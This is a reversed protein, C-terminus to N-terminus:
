LFIDHKQIPPNEEFQIKEREKKECPHCAIPASDFRPEEKTQEKQLYRADRGVLDFTDETVRVCM